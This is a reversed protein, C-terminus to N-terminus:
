QPTITWTGDAMITIVSPGAVVPVTGSYDGIENVLSGPFLGAVQSVIFNSSGAHTIAWTGAEGDYLFVGDGTGSAPLAPATAIPSITVTWAGDAQVQLSTSPNGLDFLGLPATGSYNGIANVISDTTPQNSSDLGGVIFNASGTHTSTVVGATVEAPLPIVADGTGSQTITEFTGYEGEYPNAAPEPAPEEAPAEDGAGEDAPASNEVTGTPTDVSDDGGGLNAVIIIVIIALLILPLIFRKKKFWPRQAKRYAKDAKARAKADKPSIATDSADETM